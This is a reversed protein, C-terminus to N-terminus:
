ATKNGNIHYGYGSYRYAYYAAISATTQRALSRQGEGHNTSTAVPHFFTGGNKLGIKVGLNYQSMM